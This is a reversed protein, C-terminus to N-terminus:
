SRDEPRHAADGDGSRADLVFQVAEVQTRIIGDPGPLAEVWALWHKVRPDSPDDTVRVVGDADVGVLFPVRRGTQMGAIHSDLFACAVHGQIHNKEALKKAQDPGM